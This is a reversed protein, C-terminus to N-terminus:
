IDRLPVTANFLSPGPSPCPGKEMKSRVKDRKKRWRRERSPITGESTVKDLPSRVHRLLSTFRELVCVCVYLRTFLAPIYLLSV